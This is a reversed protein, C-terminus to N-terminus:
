AHEGRQAVVGRLHDVASPATNRLRRIDWGIRTVLLM